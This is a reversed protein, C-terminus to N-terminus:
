PVDIRVINSDTSENGRSDVAKTAYYYTKHSEVTNDVFSTDPIPASNLKPEAFNNPSTGRYVNYGVVPSSSAKWTLKVSHAPMSPAASVARTTTARFWYGWLLLTFLVGLATLIRAPFAVKRNQFALIMGVILVVCGISGVVFATIWETTGAESFPAFELFKWRLRPIFWLTLIPFLALVLILLWTVRLTRSKNMIQLPQASAM